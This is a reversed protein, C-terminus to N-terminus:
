AIAGGGAIVVLHGHFDRIEAHLLLPDFPSEAYRETQFRVSWMKGTDPYNATGLLRTEVRGEGAPRTLFFDVRSPALAPDVEVSVVSETPELVRLVGEDGDRSRCSLKGKGLKKGRFTSGLIKLLNEHLSEPTGKKEAILGQMQAVFKNLSKYDSDQSM